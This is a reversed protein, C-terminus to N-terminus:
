LDSPIEQEDADGLARGEPRRQLERLTGLERALRDDGKEGVGALAVERGPEELLSQGFRVGVNAYEAVAEM